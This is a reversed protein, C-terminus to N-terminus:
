LIASAAQDQRGRMRRIQASCAEGCLVGIHLPSSVKTSKHLPHSSLLGFKEIDDVSALGEPMVRKKRGKSLVKSQEMMQDVIEKTIGAKAQPICVCTVQLTVYSGHVSCSMIISMCDGIHEHYYEHQACQGQHHEGQRIATRNKDGCEASSCPRSDHCSLATDCCM